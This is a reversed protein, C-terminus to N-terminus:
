APRYLGLAWLAKELTPTQKQTAPIQSASLRAGAKWGAIIKGTPCHDEDLEYAYVSRHIPVGDICEGDCVTLEDLTCPAHMILVKIVDIGHTKPDLLVIGRSLYSVGRWKVRVDEEAPTELIFAEGPIFNSVSLNFIARATSEVINKLALSHGFPDDQLHPYLVGHPTKVLVEEMGERFALRLPYCMDEVSSGLGAAITDCDPNSPAGADRHLAILVNQNDKLALIIALGGAPWRWDLSSEQFYKRGAKNVAVLPDDDIEIEWFKDTGIEYFLPVAPVLVTEGISGSKVLALFETFSVLPSKAM